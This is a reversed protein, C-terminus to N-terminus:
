LRLLLAKQTRLLEDIEKELSRLRARLGGKYANRSVTRKGAPSQPGSSQEWPSWRRILKAQKQKQELTWKRAAM